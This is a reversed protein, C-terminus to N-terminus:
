GVSMDAWPTLSYHESLGKLQYVGLFGRSVDTPDFVRIHTHGCPKGTNWGAKQTQCLTAPVTLTCSFNRRVKPGQSKAMPDTCLCNVVHTGLDSRAKLALPRRASASLSSIERAGADGVLGHGCPDLRRGSTRGGLLGLPCPCAKLM